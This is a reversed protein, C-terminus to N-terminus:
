AAGVRRLGTLREVLEDALPAHLMDVFLRMRPRYCRHTSWASLSFYLRMWLLEIRERSYYDDYAATFALEQAQRRERSLWRSRFGSDLAVHNLFPAIDYVVSNSHKLGVDIGITREGSQILNEPKFDGHLLVRPMIVAEAAASSGDLCDLGREVTPPRRGQPWIRALVALRDAAELPCEGDRYIGHFRRLWGGARSMARHRGSGASRRLLQRITPGPCYEIILVAQEPFVAFARPTAFASDQPFDAHLRRLAEFETVCQAEDSTDSGAIFCQKVLVSTACWRCRARHLKSNLRRRSAGAPRLGGIEHCGVCSLTSLIREVTLSGM